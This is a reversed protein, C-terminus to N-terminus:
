FEEWDGYTGAGAEAASYTGATAESMEYTTGSWFGVEHVIGAPLMRVLEAEKEDTHEALVFLFRVRWASGLYREQLLTTPMGLQAARAMIAGPTGRDFGEAEKIRERLDAAPEGLIPHVGALQRLWPLFEDPARNPDVLISWGVEGTDSDRVLTQVIEFPRALAQCYRQLAYGQEPDGKALPALDRYLEEAFTPM